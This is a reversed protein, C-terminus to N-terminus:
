RSNKAKFECRCVKLHGKEAAHHLPTVGFAFDPEHDERMDLILRCVELHGNAAASHLPTDGRMHVQVYNEFVNGGMYASNPDTAFETLGAFFEINGNSAEKVCKMATVCSWMKKM